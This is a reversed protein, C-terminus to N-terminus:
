GPFLDQLIHGLGLIELSNKAERNSKILLSIQLATRGVEKSDFSFVKFLYCYHGTFLITFLLSRLSLDQDISM